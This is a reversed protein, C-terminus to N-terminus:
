CSKIDTSIGWFSLHIISAKLLLAASSSLVEIIIEDAYPIDFAKTSVISEGL